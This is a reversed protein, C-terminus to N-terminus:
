RPNESEEAGSEAAVAGFEVTLHNRDYRVLLNVPGLPIQWRMRMGDAAHCGEACAGFVACHFGDPPPVFGNPEDCCGEIVINVGVKGDGCCSTAKPLTLVATTCCKECCGKSKHAAAASKECCGKEKCCGACCDDCDDECCEECCGEEASAHTAHRAVPAAHVKSPQTHECEEKARRLATLLDVIQEHVAPSQRVVIAWSRYYCDITGTGGSESWSKPEVGTTIVRILDELDDLSTEKGKGLLDAVPYVNTRCAGHSECCAAPSAGKACPKAPCETCRPCAPPM